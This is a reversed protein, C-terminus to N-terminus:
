QQRPIQPVALGLPPNTTPWMVAFQFAITPCNVANTACHHSDVTLTYCGGCLPKCAKPGSGGIEVRRSATVTGYLAFASIPTLNHLPLNETM